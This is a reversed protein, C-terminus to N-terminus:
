KPLLQVTNGTEIHMNLLVKASKTNEDSVSVEHFSYSYLAHM